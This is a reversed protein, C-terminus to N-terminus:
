LRLIVSLPIGKIQVVARMFLKNVNAELESEVRAPAVPLLPVVRRVTFDLLKVEGETRERKVVRVKTPDAIHIFALLDTESFWVRRSGYMLDPTM